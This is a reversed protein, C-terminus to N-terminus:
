CITILNVLYYLVQDSIIGGNPFLHSISPDSYLLEFGYRDLGLERPAPSCETITMGGISHYQEIVLMPIYLCEQLTITNSVMRSM